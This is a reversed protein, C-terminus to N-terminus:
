ATWPSICARSQATSPPLGTTTVEKPESLTLTMDGGGVKAIALEILHWLVFTAVFGGVLGALAVVLTFWLLLGWNWYRMGQGGNERGLPRHAQLRLFERRRGDGLDADRLRAGLRHGAVPREPGLFPLMSAVVYLVGSLITFQGSLKMIEPRVSAKSKEHAFYEGVMGVLPELGTPATAAPGVSEGPHLAAGTSTNIAPSATAGGLIKDAFKDVLVPAVAALVPTPIM